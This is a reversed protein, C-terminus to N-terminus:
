DRSLLHRTWVMSDEITFPKDTLDAGCYDCPKPFPRMMTDKESLPRRPKMGCECDYVRVKGLIYTADKM